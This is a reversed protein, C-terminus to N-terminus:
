SFEGWGEYQPDTTMKFLGYEYKHQDYIEQNRRAILILRDKDQTSLIGRRLNRELVKNAKIVQGKMSRERAEWWAKTKKDPKPQNQKFQTWLRDNEIIQDHLGDRISKLVQTETLSIAQSLCAINYTSSARSYEKQLYDYREQYYENTDTM